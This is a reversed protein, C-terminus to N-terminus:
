KVGDCHELDNMLENEIAVAEPCAAWSDYVSCKADAAAEAKAIAGARCLSQMRKGYNAPVCAAAMLGVLVLALRM